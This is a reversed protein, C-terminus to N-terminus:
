IQNKYGLHCKQPQLRVSIDM